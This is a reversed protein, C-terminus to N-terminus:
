NVSLLSDTMMLIVLINIKGLIPPTIPTQVRSEPEINVQTEEEPRTQMEVEIGM